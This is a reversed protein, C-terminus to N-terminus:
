RAPDESRKPAHAGAKARPRATRGVANATNPDGNKGWFMIAAAIAASGIGVGAAVGLWRKQRADREALLLAEDGESSPSCRIRSSFTSTTTPWEMRRM